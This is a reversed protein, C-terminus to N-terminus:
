GATARAMARGLREIGVQIRDPTVASFSLRVFRGGEGSAFCPSGPLYGVGEDQAAERLREPDVAPKLELWIFFGGEPRTWSACEACCRELAALM